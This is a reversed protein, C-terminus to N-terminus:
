MVGMVASALLQTRRCNRSTGHYDSYIKAFSQLSFVWGGINSGFLVQWSLPPVSPPLPQRLVSM